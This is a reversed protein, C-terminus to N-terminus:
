ELPIGERQALDKALPGAAQNGDVEHFRGAARYHEVLPRTQAEYAALRERIIEERDDARHILATSDTDCFGERAPPQLYVNYIKGCQPCSRRGTLRRLLLNYDVALNIM